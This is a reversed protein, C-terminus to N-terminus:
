FPIAMFHLFAGGPALIFIKVRLPAQAIRSFVIDEQFRKFIDMYKFIIYGSYSHTNDRIKVEQVEM